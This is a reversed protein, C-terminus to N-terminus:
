VNVKTLGVDADASGRQKLRGIASVLVVPFIYLFLLIDFLRLFGRVSVSVLSLFSFASFHIEECFTLSTFFSVVANSDTEGAVDM